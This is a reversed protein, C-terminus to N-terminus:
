IHILSLEYQKRLNENVENTMVLKDQFDKIISDQVVVYDKYYLIISDQEDVINALYKREIM